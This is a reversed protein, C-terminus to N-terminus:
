CLHRPSLTEELNNQNILFFNKTMLESDGLEARPNSSFDSTDDISEEGNIDIM